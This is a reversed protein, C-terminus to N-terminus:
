KSTLLLSVYVEKRGGVVVYKSNEVRRLTTLFKAVFISYKQIEHLDHKNYAESPM